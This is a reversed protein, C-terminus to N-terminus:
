EAREETNANVSTVPGSRLTPDTDTVLLSRSYRDDSTRSRAKGHRKMSGNLRAYDRSDINRKNQNDGCPYYQMGGEVAADVVGEVEALREKQKETLTSGDGHLKDDEERLASIVGFVVAGQLDFLAHLQDGELIYSIASTATEGVAKDSHEYPPCIKEKMSM